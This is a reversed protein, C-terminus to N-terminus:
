HKHKGTWKLGRDTVKYYAEEIMIEEGIKTTGISYHFNGSSYTIYRLLDNYWFIDRITNLDVNHDSLEDFERKNLKPYGNIYEFEDPKRLKFQPIYKTQKM